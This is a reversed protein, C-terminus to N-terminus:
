KRRKALFTKIDSHTSAMQARLTELEGRLAAVQNELAAIRAKDTDDSAHSSTSRSAQLRPAMLGAKNANGSAHSSASRSARSLAPVLESLPVDVYFSRRRRPQRPASTSAAPKFASTATPPHPRPGPSGGPLDLPPDAPSGAASPANLKMKGLHALTASPSRASGSMESQGRVPKKGKKLRRTRKEKKLSEPQHKSELQAVRWAFIDDDTQNGRFAKGNERKPM